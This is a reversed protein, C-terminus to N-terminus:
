DSEDDSGGVEVRGDPALTDRRRGSDEEVELRDGQVGDGDQEEEADEFGEEESSEEEVDEEGADEGEEDGPEPEDSQRRGGDLKLKNTGQTIPATSGERGTVEDPDIRLRKTEHEEREREVEEGVDLSGVTTDGGGGSERAKVRERYGRRKGRVESEWIEVEREVRGGKQGDKGIVGIQMAQDMEIERLAKIVDQSQITKRETMENSTSALLSIFVTASKTLALVADKQISTNPPLVGKALRQVISRPLLLDDLSVPDAHQQATAEKDTKDKKKSSKSPEPQQDKPSPITPAESIMSVDGNVDTTAVSATSKRPM